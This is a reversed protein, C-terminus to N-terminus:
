DDLNDEMEFTFQFIPKKSVAVGADNLIHYIRDAGSPNISIVTTPIDYGMDVMHRAIDTGTKEDDPDHMILDFDHDLFIHICHEHITDLTRVAEEYEYASVIHSSPFGKHFKLWKIILNHREPMDDIILIVADAM